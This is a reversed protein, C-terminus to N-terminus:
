TGESLQTIQTILRGARMENMVNEAIEDDINILHWISKKLRKGISIGVSDNHLDMHREAPTNYPNSDEQLVGITYAATAGLLLTLEASMYTHKFADAENNHSTHNPEMSFHYINYYKEVKKNLHETYAEKFLKFILKIM